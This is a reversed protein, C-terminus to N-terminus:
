GRPMASAKRALDIAAQNAKWWDVVEADNPNWAHEIVRDVLPSTWNNRRNLDINRHQVLGISRRYVDAADQDPPISGVLPAVEGYQPGVDPIEVARYLIYSAGLLGFPVTVLLGLRVWPRAGERQLLWDGAWAGSIALLILPILCLSWTPIMQNTELGIQLPVLAIFWIVGVLAATIR